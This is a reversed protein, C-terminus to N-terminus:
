HLILLCTESEAVVKRTVKSFEGWRVRWLPSYCIKNQITRLNLLTLGLQSHCSCSLSVPHAPHSVSILSKWHIDGDGEPRLVSTQKMSPSFVIFPSWLCGDSVEPNENNKPGHGTSLAKLFHLQETMDLEKHGWPSYGVLSRQWHSKRPLLVPISQWKRRWPFRGSGPISGLDGM